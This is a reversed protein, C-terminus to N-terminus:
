CESREALHFKSELHLKRPPFNLGFSTVINLVYQQADPQLWVVVRRWMSDVSIQQPAIYYNNGCVEHLYALKRQM